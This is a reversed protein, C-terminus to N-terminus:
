RGVNRGVLPGVSRGVDAGEHPRQGVVQSHKSHVETLKTPLVLVTHKLCDQLFEAMLQAHQMPAEGLECHKIADQGPPV